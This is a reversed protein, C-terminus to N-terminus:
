KQTGALKRLLEEGYRYAELYDLTEAALAFREGVRERDSVPRLTAEGVWPVGLFDCVGQATALALTDRYAPSLLLQVDARSTHFGHEILVAPADTKTLVTYGNHAM